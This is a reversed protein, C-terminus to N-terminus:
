LAGAIAAIMAELKVGYQATAWRQGLERWSLVPPTVLRRVLRYRGDVLEESAVAVGAYALVHQVHARAGLQWTAFSAHSLTLLAARAAPAGALPVAEDHVTLAEPDVRLGCTNHMSALVAGTFRGGDTEHYAQAVVGVPDVGHQCAETWLPDLMHAVFRRHHPQGALWAGVHVLTASPADILLRDM